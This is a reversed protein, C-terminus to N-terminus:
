AIEKGDYSEKAKNEIANIMGEHTKKSDELQSKLQQCQVEKFEIKQNYIALETEFKAKM